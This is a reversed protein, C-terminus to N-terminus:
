AVTNMLYASFVELSLDVIRQYSKQMKDSSHMLNGVMKQAFIELIVQM